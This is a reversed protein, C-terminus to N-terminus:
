QNRAKSRPSNTSRSVALTAPDVEYSPAPEDHEDPDHPREILVDVKLRGPGRRRLRVDIKM